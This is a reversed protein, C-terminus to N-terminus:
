EKPQNQAPVEKGMNKMAEVDLNGMRERDQKELNEAHEVGEGKRLFELDKLDSESATKKAKALEAQAKAQKLQIDVENEMAKAMENRVEAEKLQVELESLRQQVPDPQPSYEEIMKALKPMKRLKAIDAMIIKTFDFPVSNGLTQLMFSLEQAKMHEVEPTSISLTLDFQGALSSRPITIFEEDTIRIIEEDSLWVSNMSVIKNAIDILGNSLRRLIGLERKATADMASRIGGVSSGLAEGTIGSNFAKVGTLSEADNNQMQLVELASRPIEPYQSTYFARKPDTHPNFKFDEGAEYKKFNLTDLADKQVGKQGSATKGLLDIVGRTVAGIIKQNDVLLEGDPEGFVSNKVPMYPVVVFPLGSFPYPMEELRIMVDGVFSAIIPKVIGDDNIDWYGWYENVVLKQRAKDKFSFEDAESAYDPDGLPSNESVSIKDLNTYRGDKKLTSLDSTYRHIVFNAKEFKGECSPDIIINRYDCVELFPRNVTEVRKKHTSEQREKIIPKGSELYGQADEESMEGSQVKQALYMHAEEPSAYVINEIVEEVEEEVTEWGVKIIATGENVATRIYNDIFAVKDIDKQFQKNLILKNYYSSEKDAHTVPTAEFLDDDSLFPETLATYRWEAQKRILRPQIKSRGKPIKTTLNGKFNELWENVNQVQKSFATYSEKYDSKLDSVSPPNNWNVMAQIDKDSFVKNIDM